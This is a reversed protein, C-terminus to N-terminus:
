TTRTRVVNHVTLLEFHPVFQKNGSERMAFASALPKDDSKASGWLKDGSGLQFSLITLPLKRLDSCKNM